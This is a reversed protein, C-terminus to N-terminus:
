PHGLTIDMLSIQESLIRDQTALSCNGTGLVISLSLYDLSHFELHHKHSLLAPGVSTNCPALKSGLNHIHM